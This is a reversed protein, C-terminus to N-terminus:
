RAAYVFIEVKGGGPVDPTKGLGITKIRNDDLQFNNALYDRVVASRAETLENQKDTEGKPGAASAVVAEGFKNEELFKGVENLTKANKLKASDEKAFLKAGDYTFEKSYPEAPLKPISHKAIEDSDEYGRKNFFGRLLFNHKLAEMDDKFAAAGATAQQYMSKDNILSGVTGQGQNIKSTVADLNDATAAVNQVAEKATDMIQNTKALLDSIDIPPASEITGGDKVPQAAESGFSVEVYKDGVLGESSISAVSDQKVVDSTGKALDMAVTVSGSPDHPLKIHRVTGKHIGGVRVDAGESLGSVTHFTANVRYTRQFLSENGGILFVGVALTALGAVIFLGLRFTQSM